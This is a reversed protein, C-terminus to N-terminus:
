RQFGFKNHNEYWPEENTPPNMDRETYLSTGGTIGEETYQQAGECTLSLVTYGLVRLRLRM